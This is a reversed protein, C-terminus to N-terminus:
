EAAVDPSPWGRRWALRDAEGVAAVLRGLETVGFVIEGDTHRREILYGDKVLEGWWLDLTRPDEVFAYGHEQEMALAAALQERAAQSMLRWLAVATQGDTKM